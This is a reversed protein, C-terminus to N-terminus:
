DPKPDSRRTGSPRGDGRAEAHDDHLRDIEHQLMGEVFTRGALEVTRPTKERIFRAGCARLVDHSPWGLLSDGGNQLEDPLQMVFEACGDSLDYGEDRAHRIAADEGTHDIIFWDEDGDSTTCWYLKLPKYASWKKESDWVFLDSVYQDGGALVTVRATALIDPEEGDASSIPEFVVEHEDPFYDIQIEEDADADWRALMRTDLLDEAAARLDAM